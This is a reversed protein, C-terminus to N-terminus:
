CASAAPATTRRPWTRGATATRPRQSRDLHPADRHQVHGAGQIHRQRQEAPHQRQQHQRQGHLHRPRRRRRRRGHAPVRPQDRDRDHLRGQGQVHRQRQQHPRERLEGRLQLDRRRDQRRRERRRHGDVLPRGGDAYDVKPALTGDGNGLLVSLTNSNYNEVVLDPKGDGSVDVIRAEAPRGGVTYTVRPLYTLSNRDSLTDPVTSLDRDLVCSYGAIATGDALAPEWAFSPGDNSYWTTESPHTSSTIGTVTGPVALAVSALAALLILTTLVVAAATSGRVLFQSRSM